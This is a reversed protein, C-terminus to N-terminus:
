YDTGVLEMLKSKLTEVGDTKWWFDETEHLYTIADLLSKFQRTNGEALTAKIYAFGDQGELSDCGSCSGFSDRWLVFTDRLKFCVYYTGQYDGDYSEALFKAEPSLYFKLASVQGGASWGWDSSGNPKDANVMFETLLM